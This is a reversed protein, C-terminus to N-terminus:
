IYNAFSILNEYARQNSLFHGEHSNLMCEPFTTISLDYIGDFYSIHSYFHTVFYSCTCRNKPTSCGYFNRQALLFNPFFGFLLRNTQIICMWISRIHIHLLCNNKKECELKGIANSIALSQIKVQSSIITSIQLELLFNSHRYLM